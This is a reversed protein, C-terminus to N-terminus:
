SGHGAAMNDAKIEYIKNLMQCTNYYVDKDCKGQSFWFALDAEYMRIIAQIEEM